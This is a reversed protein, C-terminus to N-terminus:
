AGLTPAAVTLWQTPFRELGTAPDDTECGTLLLACMVALIVAHLNLLLPPRHVAGTMEHSALRNIGPQGMSGQNTHLSRTSGQGDRARFREAQLRWFACRCRHLRVPQDM